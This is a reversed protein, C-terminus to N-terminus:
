TAIAYPLLQWCLQLFMCRGWTQSRDADLTGQRRGGHPLSWAVGQDEEASSDHSGSEQLMKSLVSHAPIRSSAKSSETEQFTLEDSGSRDHSTLLDPLRPPFSSSLQTDSAEPSTQHPPGAPAEAPASTDEFPGAPWDAGRDAHPSDSTHRHM